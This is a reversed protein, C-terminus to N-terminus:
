DRQGAAFPAGPDLDLVLRDPGVLSDEHQCRWRDNADLGQITHGDEIVDGKDFIYYASNYLVRAVENSDMGMFHCQLDPLGLTALGMTDMLTEGEVGNGIKFLRVNIAPSIPDRDGAGKSALYAAPSVFQESSRWHLAACPAVDITALVAEHFLALRERRDLPDCLMETVLVASPCRAVVERAEPWDWSQQLDQDPARYGDPMNAIVTQAHVTGNSFTVPHSPHAFLFMTQEDAKGLAVVDEGARARLAALLSSKDLRPPREYLLAVANNPSVKDTM